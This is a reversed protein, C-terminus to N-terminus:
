RNIVSAGKADFWVVGNAVMAMGERVFMEHPIAQQLQLKLAPTFIQDWNALLAAKTQIKLPRRRNVELPYSVFSAARAKDGAIVAQLFTRVRGEFVADPEDTVESYWRTPGNGDYETTFGLTVPLTKAGQTWTGELGTSYYFNLPRRATPDNTVLHLHFVGGNPEKLTVKEGAVQGNLPINLLKSAYFYHGGVVEAYDRVLLNMGIAYPGIKGEMEHTSLGKPAEMASVSSARAFTATATGNSALFLIMSLAHFRM